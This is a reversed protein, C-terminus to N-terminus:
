SRRSSRCGVASGDPHEAEGVLEAGVCRGRQATETLDGVCRRHEDGAVVLGRSGRDGCGDADVVHPRTQQGFGLDSSDLLKLGAAAAQRYDSVTHVVGGCQGGGMDPHGHSAVAGVQGKLGGVHDHDLVLQGGQGGGDVEGSVGAPDHGGVQGEGGDDDRGQDKEVQGTMEREGEADGPVLSGGHHDPEVPQTEQAAPM